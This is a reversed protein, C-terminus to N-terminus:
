PSSCPAVRSAPLTQERPSRHLEDSVTALIMARSALSSHRPEEPIEPQVEYAQNEPVQNVQEEIPNERQGINANQPVTTIRVPPAGLFNAIREMQLSLAQYSNNTDQILPNIVTGVQQTVLNVMEHNTEEMQQSLASLSANTLSQQPSGFPTFSGQPTGFPISIGPNFLQPMPVNLSESSGSPSTQLNQMLSTPIGYPTRRGAGLNFFGQSSANGMVQSTQTAMSATPIARSTSAAMTNTPIAQSTQATMTNGALTLVLEIITATTSTQSSQTVGPPVPPNTATGSTTATNSAATNPIPPPRTM